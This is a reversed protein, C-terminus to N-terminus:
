KAIQKRWCQPKPKQRRKLPMFLLRLLKFRQSCLSTLYPSILFHFLHTPSLPSLSRYYLPPLVQLGHQQEEIVKNQTQLALVEKEFTASAAKAKKAKKKAKEMKGELDSRITEVRNTLQANDLQMRNYDTQLTSFREKLQTQAEKKEKVKDGAEKRQSDMLALADQSRQLELKAFALQDRLGDRLDELALVQKRKEELEEQHKKLVSEQLVSMEKFYVSEQSKERSLDGPLLSPLFM